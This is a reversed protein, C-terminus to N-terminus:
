LSCRFIVTLRHQRKAIVFKHHLLCVLSHFAIRGSGRRRQHFHGGSTTFTWMSGRARDTGKPHCATTKSKHIDNLKCLQHIVAVEFTRGQDSHLQYSLPSAEPRESTLCELNASGSKGWSKLLQPPLSAERLFQLVTSRLYM